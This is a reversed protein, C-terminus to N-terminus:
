YNQDISIATLECVNGLFGGGLDVTLQNVTLQVPYGNTKATIATALMAKTLNSNVDPIAYTANIIMAACYDTEYTPESLDSLGLTVLSDVAGFASQFYSNSDLKQVGITDIKAFFTASYGQAALLMTITFLLSSRFARMKRQMILIYSKM